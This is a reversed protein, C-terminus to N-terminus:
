YPSVRISRHRQRASPRSSCSVQSYAKDADLYFQKPDAYHEDIALDEILAVSNIYYFVGM